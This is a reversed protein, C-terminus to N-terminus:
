EHRCYLLIQAYLARAFGAGKICVVGGVGKDFHNNPLIVLKSAVKRPLFVHGGGNSDDSSTQRTCSSEHCGTGLAVVLRFDGCM